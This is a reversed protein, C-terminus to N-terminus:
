SARERSAHVRQRGRRRWRPSTTEHLRWRRSWCTLVRAARRPFLKELNRRKLAHSFEDLSLEKDNNRDLCEFMQRVGGYKHLALQALRERAKNTVRENQANIMFAKRAKEREIVEFEDSENAAIEEADRLTTQMQQSESIWTRGPRPVTTPGWTAMQLPRDRETNLRRTRFAASRDVAAAGPPQKWEGIHPTLKERAQAKASTMLPVSPDKKKKAKLQKRNTAGTEVRQRRGSGLSSRATSCRTSPRGSTGPRSQPSMPGRPAEIAM